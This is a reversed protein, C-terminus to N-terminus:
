LRKMNSIKKVNKVDISVSNVLLVAVVNKNNGMSAEKEILLLKGKICIIRGITKAALQANIIGIEVGGFAITKEVLLNCILSRIDPNDDIILIEKKM